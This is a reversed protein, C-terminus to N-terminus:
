ENKIMNLFSKVYKITDTSTTQFVFPFFAHIFAQVSAILFNISLSLSGVAHQFYTMNLENPHKNFLNYIYMVIYDYFKKEYYQSIQLLIM